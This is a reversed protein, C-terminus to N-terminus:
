AMFKTNLLDGLVESNGDKKLALKAIPKYSFEKFKSKGSAM